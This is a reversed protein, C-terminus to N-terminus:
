ILPTATSAAKAWAQPPHDRRGARAIEAGKRTVPHMPRRHRAQGFPSVQAGRGVDNSCLRNRHAPDPPWSAIDRLAAERRECPRACGDHIGCSM